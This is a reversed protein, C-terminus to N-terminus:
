QDAPVESVSLYEPLHPNSGIAGYLHAISGIMTELNFRQATRIAREGMSQRVTGNCLLRMLLNAFDLCNWPDCIFGTGGEVELEEVGGVRTTVIPVGSALAELFVYSLGECRSTHGLVDFACVCDEGRLTGAWVIRDSVNLEAALRQLDELLPGSGVMVLYPLQAGSWGRTLTAFAQVMRDPNKMECLRSIFGITPAHPPIGLQARVLVRSERQLLIRATDVGNPIHVILRAPIGTQQACKAEAHSVVIVARARRALLSELRAVAMRKLGTLSPDNTMLSHPTYVQAANKTGVLLRALFGAKTSHSHIVDFTGHKRMYKWIRLYINLDSFSLARTIPLALDRFRKHKLKLSSLGEQFQVDSRLVSHVLHVEFGRSLLGNALDLVHRGSGGLTAELILLAKQSARNSSM